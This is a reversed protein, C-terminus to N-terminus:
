PRPLSPNTWCCGPERGLSRLLRAKCAEKSTRRCGPFSDYRLWGVVSRQIQKAVSNMEFLGRVVRAFQLVKMPLSSWVV